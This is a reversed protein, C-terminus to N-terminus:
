GDQGARHAFQSIVDPLGAPLRSSKDPLIGSKPESKPARLHRPVVLEFFNKEDAGTWDHDPLAAFKIIGAHLRALRQAFFAVLDHQHIRIRGGDHGIRFEGIASIDLRDRRFHDLRDHFAFFRVRDQGSQASLGREIGCHFQIAVARQRPVAHFQDARVRLRDCFAFVAL